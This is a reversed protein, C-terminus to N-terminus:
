ATGLLLAVDCPSSRRAESTSAVFLIIGAMLAFPLAVHACPRASRGGGRSRLSRASLRCPLLSQRRSFFIAWTLTPGELFFETTLTWTHVTAFEDM